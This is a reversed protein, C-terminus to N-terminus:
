RVITLMDPPQMQSLLQHSQTNSSLQRQSILLHIVHFTVSGEAQWNVNM